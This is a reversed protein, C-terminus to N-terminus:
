EDTLDAKTLMIGTVLHLIYCAASSYFAAPIILISEFIFPSLLIGCWFGLCVPCKILEKFWSIHLSLYDRITNFISGYMLIFCLGYVALTFLLLKDM